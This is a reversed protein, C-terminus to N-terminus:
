GTLMDHTQPLRVTDGMQRRAVQRSLVLRHGGATEWKGVPSGYGGAMPKLSMSKKALQCRDSSGVRALTVFDILFM